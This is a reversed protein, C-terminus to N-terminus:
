GLGGRWFDAIFAMLSDRRLYVDRRLAAPLLRVFKRLGDPLWVSGSRIAGTLWLYPVNPRWRPKPVEEDGAEDALWARLFHEGSDNLLQSPGWLRPNAEIIFHHHGRMRVEVMVFGRFRLRRFIRVLQPVVRRPPPCSWAFCISGGNRQQRGNGQAALWYRGSRFFYFLLYYSAGPIFEQLFYEEPRFHPAFETIARPHLLLHPKLRRGSDTFEKRPKAVVPAMAQVLPPSLEAPVDLGERRCLDLFPEKDAIRYYVETDPAVLLAGMAELPERNELWFRNFYESVPLIRLSRDPFSRAVVDLAERTQTVSPQAVLNAVIMRSYATRRILDAEGRGVVAFPTASAALARAAALVARSNFGSVIV